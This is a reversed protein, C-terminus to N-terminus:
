NLEGNIDGNIALCNTSIIKYAVKESKNVREGGTYIVDRDKHTKKPNQKSTCKKCLEWKPNTRLQGVEEEFFCGINSIYKSV